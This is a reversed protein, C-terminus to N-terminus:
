AGGLTVRQSVLIGKKMKKKSLRLPPTPQSTNEAEPAAEPSPSQAGGPSEASGKGNQQSGVEPPRPLAGGLKESDLSTLPPPVADGGALIMIEFDVESKKPYPLKEPTAEEATGRYRPTSPPPEAQVRTTFGCRYGPVCRKKPSREHIGGVQGLFRELDWSEVWVPDEHQDAPLPEGADM